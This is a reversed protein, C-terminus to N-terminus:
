RLKELSKTWEAAMELAGRKSGELEAMRLVVTVYDILDQANASPARLIRSVVDTAIHEFDMPM